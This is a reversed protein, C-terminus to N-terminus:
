VRLNGDYDRLDLLDEEKSYPITEDFLEDWCFNCVKYRSNGRIRPKTTNDDNKCISCNTM